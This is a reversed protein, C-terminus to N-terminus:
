TGFSTTWRVRRNQHGSDMPQLLQVIQGVVRQLILQQVAAVEEAEEVQGLAAADRVGLRDPQKTVTKSLSTHAILYALLDLLLQLRLAIKGAASLGDIDRALTSCTDPASACIPPLSTRHRPMTRM